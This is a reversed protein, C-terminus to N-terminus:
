SGTGRGADGGTGTPGVKDATSVAAEDRDAVVEDETNGVEDEDETTLVPSEV